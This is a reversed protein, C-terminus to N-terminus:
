SKEVAKREPPLLDRPQGGDWCEQQLFRTMKRYLHKSTHPGSLAHNKDTYLQMHFDVDASTLAKIFQASHQFHVNDDATGHILLFHKDKFNHAKTSVNANDYGRYNDNSHALGMYRETYATDYYRWDTVPAVSIGCNFAQADDGIAHATVFGGYSWGWIAVREKDVYKLTTMFKVAHLQDQVEISGLNRYIKHLFRDGRGRTGRGDVSAYIVNGGSSLYTHWGINFKETVLQSGPGGYVYLLLPYQTIHKKNLMPPLYIEALLTEGDPTPIKVYEKTPLAFEKLKEALDANDELVLVDKSLTSRLTYTPIGPGKCELIYYKGSTSFSASIYTCNEDQDCTLCEQGASSQGYSPGYIYKEEEDYGVIEDVEWHGQTLFSKYSTMDRVTIMAIHKWFGAGGDREPLITLYSQGNDIFRVSDQTCDASIVDCLMIITKNQVRNSWAVLLWNDDRWDVLTLYHDVTRLEPPPLLKRHALGINKTDVIYLQVTPLVNDGKDGAKPYAIEDIDGYVNDGSGYFPYKYLPVNTDNFMAYVVHLGHPSIWHARNSHLIEEEYVWDPIGNFIIKKKGTHTVRTATTFPDKQYFLDNDYVFTLAHGQPSWGAYQLKRNQWQDDTSQPFPILKSYTSFFFFSGQDEQTPANRNYIKFRAKYSQRYVQEVDFAILVYNLDPSVCFSETNLKRFTSNDMMVSTTNDYANLEILEGDRSRYVLVDKGKIWQVSLHRPNYQHTVFDDFTFLRGVMEEEAKPTVLIIALVILACVVLIVLLAIVIGRWNRNSPSNGVLEKSWGLKRHM